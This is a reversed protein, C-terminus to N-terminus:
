GNNKENKLLDSCAFLEEGHRQFAQEFAEFLENSHASVALTMATKPLALNGASRAVLPAVGRKARGLPTSLVRKQFFADEAFLTDIRGSNLDFIGHELLVYPRLRAFRSYEDLLYWHFLSGQLVGITTHEFDEPKTRSPQDQKQVFVPTLQCLPSTLKVNDIEPLIVTDIVVLADLRFTQLDELLQEFPGPIFDCQAQIMDCLPTIVDILIGHVQQQENLEVYPTRRKEIGIYLQRKEATENAQAFWSACVIFCCVLYCILRRM